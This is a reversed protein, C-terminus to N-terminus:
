SEKNDNDITETISRKIFSNMTEGTKRIHEQMRDYLQCSVALSMRKLNKADWRANAAKRTESLPM